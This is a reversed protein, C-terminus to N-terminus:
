KIIFKQSRIVNGSQMKLVYVGPAYGNVNVSSVGNAFKVFKGEADYIWAKDVNNLNLSGDELSFTSVKSGDNVKDIGTETFGEPQDAVGKDRTDVIVRGPNTGTIEVGFDISFGKAHQGVPNFMGAFWADSFVIRLRSPGPTANSPVTFSFTVGEASQFAPTKDRLTGAFFLREGEPDTETKGAAIEAATRETPLPKDFDGSGNLDMWGGLFCWKLGDSKDACKINMSVTQGQAVKLVHDTADAYQSGDAVPGTASYNLNQTAGTTTVSTVYRQERAIDAGECAPDMCSEGYNGNNARDPLASQAARPVAVWETASYTKLDTSVARVGIFPQDAASEFMINGVYTSWSTTRGIESVRGNVGNKYLIEFHDINAEDNYVLGWAARTTAVANVDWYIKAGMSTKTEEKVEVMVDRVNAPTVTSNDNIELKGVLLSYNNDNGKVRLGIRDIVDNTSLGAIQITKEEWTAGSVDGYPVEIWQGSGQKRLIVYLSSANKGEKGNKVAVKAYPASGSVKLATKYMVIDTGGSVAAGTLRLCSGGTYADTHTYNPQINTSVTTTGPNVVMWRYTPVLDQAGMNYWSGNTRKGKYFYREGNGLTFHTGFPLSGQITSREPIFSALGCFTQM